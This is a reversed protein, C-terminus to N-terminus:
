FDRRGVFSDVVFPRTTQYIALRHGGPAHFTAAPGMPLELTRDTRCGLARLEDSAARLDVVRYVSIARTDPLHDTLLLPPSGTGLRLMAVRTGGDDIAFVVEAGLVTAFWEVDGAVDSSPAYIYDLSGLRLDEV